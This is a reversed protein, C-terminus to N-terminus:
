KAKVDDVYEVSEHQITVGEKNALKECFTIQKKFMKCLEDATLTCGEKSWWMTIIPLIGEPNLLHIKKTVKTRPQYEAMAAQGAFLNNMESAQKKADAQKREEEERKAREQELRAAEARERQKMEAELRAAEEQNAKAIRELNVKKSPLRDLIYTKMGGVEFAYQEKFQTALKSVLEKEINEAEARMDYPIRVRAHLNTMWEPSLDLPYSEVRSFSAGYNEITVANDIDKLANVNRELEAHFQGKLDEEMEFVLRERMQAAQQKALEEARRREEEQRKQAAYENRLLQLQHPITGKKSPDIDNEVTTFASRVEDFLKTVPSRRENMKQVTKRAKDIFVAVQQDLEDTIKGGNQEILNLLNQGAKICNDHSLTNDAYAQPAAQVIQAINERKVLALQSDNQKAIENNM